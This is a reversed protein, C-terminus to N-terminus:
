EAPKNCLCVDPTHYICQKHLPISNNIIDSRYEYHPKQIHITSIYM